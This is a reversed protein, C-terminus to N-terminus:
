KTRPVDRAGSDKLTGERAPEVEAGPDWLVRSVDEGARSLDRGPGAGGCEAWQEHQEGLLVDIDRLLEPQGGHVRLPLLGAAREDAPKEETEMDVCM